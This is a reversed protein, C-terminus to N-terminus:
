ATPSSPLATIDVYTFFTDVVDQLTLNKVQKPTGNVSLWNNKTTDNYDEPKEIVGATIFDDITKTTLASSLASPINDLTTTSDILSLAGTTSTGFIDGVTLTDIDTALTGIKLKAIAKIIGTQEAGSGDTVKGTTTDYNYGLIEAVYMNDIIDELENIKRDLYKDKNIFSPLEVGYSSLDRLTTNEGLQSTFDVLAITLPLYKLEVQVENATSVAFVNGKIDVRNEVADYTYDFAVADTLEEDTYLSNNTTNFYYTNKKSLIDELESLDLTDKLEYASINSLKDQVANMLDPFPVDKLDTINIGVITDGIDVGFDDKLDNLTYSDINQVLSISHNVLKNLTLSNLDENGLSLETNFTNNIWNASVKFYAFAGIGFILGLGLILGIFTGFLFSGIQTRSKREIKGIQKEM